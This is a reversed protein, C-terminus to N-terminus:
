FGAARAGICGSVGARHRAVRRSVQLGFFLVTASSDGFIRRVSVDFSFEKSVYGLGGSLRPQEPRRRLSLRRPAPYQGGALVEVGAWARLKTEDYTTFDGVLDAELTFLSPASLRHRRRVHLPLLGHGPDTLNNGVLSFALERRRDSASGPTSRSTACSARAACAARHSVRRCSSSPRASLRGPESGPLSRIRGGPVQGLASLRPRLPPRHGHRDVGDPDQFLWNASVGGALRSRSVVSDVIALATRSATQRRGSSHWGAWTISARPPSTPRTSRCRRSRTVSRGCRAAWPRRQACNRGRLLQLRGRSAAPQARGRAAGRRLAGCAGVGFLVGTHSACVLRVRWLGIRSRKAVFGVPQVVRGRRAASEM